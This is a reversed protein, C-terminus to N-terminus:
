VGEESKENKKVPIPELDLGCVNMRRVRYSEYVDDWAARMEPQRPRVEQIMSRPIDYEPGLDEQEFDDLKIYVAQEWAETVNSVEKPHSLSSSRLIVPDISRSSQLSFSKQSTAQPETAVSGVSARLGAVAVQYSGKNPQLVTSTSSSEFASSAKKLLLSDALSANLLIGPTPLVLIREYNTFSLLGELPYALDPEESQIIPDIPMLSVDYRTSALQIIRLSTELSKLSATDDEWRGDDWSKPYLMIRDALSEQRELEAFLMVANCVDLQHRLVQAHALRAWNPENRSGPKRQNGLEDYRGQTRFSRSKKPEPEPVKPAPPPHIIAQM